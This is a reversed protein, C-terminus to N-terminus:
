TEWLGEGRPLPCPSPRTLAPLLCPLPRTLADKWGEMGRKLFGYDRRLFITVEM